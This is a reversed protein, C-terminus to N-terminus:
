AHADANHRSACHGCCYIAGDPGELGHGIVRTGCVVCVPAMHQIACEFCDFSLTQDGKTIMLPEHYANGCQACNDM